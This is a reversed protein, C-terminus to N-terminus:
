RVSEQYLAHFAGVQHELSFEGRVLLAANKIISAKLSEIDLLEIICNRIDDPYKPRVLMGTKRHAIVEPIGGVTTAIVPVNCAMAELIANPLGESISPLLFIDLIPLLENVDDRFGLFKVNETLGLQETMKELDSRSPGDGVVVCCLQPYKKVVPPLAELLYRHGKVPDLRGVVGLVPYRSALGLQEKKATSPKSEFRSLDVGYHIVQLRSAPVKRKTIISQKVEDSVAVIRYIDKMAWRYAVQQIKKAHMYNQHHSVTEWSIHVPVNARRAAFAGIVDAYFLTTQVIDIQYQKMLRAVKSILSIDFRHHKPFVYVPLGLQSFREELPGSQGVSCVIQQYQEGYKDNIAKVLELLKLEAGGIAFGNVLHLINITRQAEM